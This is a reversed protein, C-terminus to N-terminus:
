NGGGNPLPPEVYVRYYDVCDPWYCNIIYEPADTAAGGCHCYNCVGNAAPGSNSRMIGGHSDPGLVLGASTMIIPDACGGQFPDHRDYRVYSFNLAPEMGILRGDRIMAASTSGHVNHCAVCTGYSDVAGDRDSDYQYPKAVLHRYHANFDKAGGTSFPAIDTDHGDPIIVSADSRFNTAFGDAYYPGSPATPGGILAFRDHCSFCLEWYAPSTYPDDWDFPVRPVVLPDDGNVSKLRFGAQYNDAAAIYTQPVEDTHVVSSDHCHTCFVTGTRGHGNAFFGWIADDGAVPPALVGNVQATGEDHCGACWTELGPTLDGQEDYVGAIWHLRAGTVEDNVGDIPGDAGHCTDCVDTESLDIDGDGNVDSGTAFSAQGNMHSGDGGPMAHCTNCASIGPGHDATMHMAHSGATNPFAEGDPPQGHCSDCEGGVPAFGADHPHCLTCTTGTYHDLDPGDNRHHSTQTHCVECPGDYYDNGDEDSDALSHLTPEGYTPGRSEYTVWRQGSNPTNIFAIWPWNDEVYLGVLKLNDGGLWNELDSHPNHCDICTHRFPDHNSGERNTHVAAKYISQGNEGHCRLCLWEHDPDPSVEPIKEHVYHCYECEHSPNFNPYVTGRHAPRIALANRPRGSLGSRGIEQGDASTPAAWALLM